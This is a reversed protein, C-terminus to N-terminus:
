FMVAAPRAALRIERLGDVAQLQTYNEARACKLVRVPASVIDRCQENSQQGPTGGASM